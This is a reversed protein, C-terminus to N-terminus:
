GPLECNMRAVAPLHNKGIAGSGKAWGLPRGAFKVVQWGAQQCPITEGRVFRCALEADVEVDQWSSGRDVRRLAAAHAPKWTQGTRHALEPGAVALEEVWAPADSPWGWVVSDVMQTRVSEGLPRFWQEWSPEAQSGQRRNTAKSRKSRCPTGAAVNRGNAVLSAAFSGACDHRQPWLRYCGQVNSGYEQLRAVEAADVCGASILRSVQAENEAEAFTCTSYILQGGSRLLRTAADLIRSQRSASHQIQKTSWSSATQRGRSLLVQGSCPADVLVVDFVSGLRDALVQPDLCSIAFRDSGTRALNLQLAAL